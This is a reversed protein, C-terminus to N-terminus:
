SFFKKLYRNKLEQLKFNEDHISSIKKYINEAFNEFSFLLKKNEPINIICDELMGKTLFKIVSGRAGQSISTIEKKYYELIYHFYNNTTVVYTRQYADFKGNYYKVSMIGNGAIIIAKCDFSYENIKMDDSACTFFPYKGNLQAVNADKKGTTLNIFEKLQHKISKENSLRIYQLYVLQEM